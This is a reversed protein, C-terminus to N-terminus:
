ATIENVLALLDQGAPLDVVLDIGGYVPAHTPMAGCRCVWRRCVVTTSTSVTNGEDDWDIAVAEITPATTAELDLGCKLVHERIALAEGPRVSDVSQVQCRELFWAWIKAAHYATTEAM